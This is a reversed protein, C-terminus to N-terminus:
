ANSQKNAEIWKKIEIILSDIPQEDFRDPNYGEEKCVIAYDHSFKLYLQFIAKDKPISPNKNSLWNRVSKVIHDQKNNHASFDFGGTDSLIPKAEYPSREFVLMEKKKWQKNGSIKLGYDIGFEFPMNFRPLGKSNPEVRSLDHISYLSGKMLEVITELRPKSSDKTSSLKPEFGSYIVTFLLPKLLSFFDDDFPCNIFVSNVNPLRGM